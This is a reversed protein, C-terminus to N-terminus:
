TVTGDVELGWECGVRGGAWGTRRKVLRAEYLRPSEHHEANDSPLERV